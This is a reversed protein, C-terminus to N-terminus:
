NLDLQRTNGSVKRINEIVAPDLAPNLLMGDIAPVLDSVVIRDGPSIEGSVLLFDEQALIVSVNQRRLRNEKGLAYVHGNHFASRPIVLSDAIVPGMIVVECFMNRMLPPNQGTQERKYPNDVEVIVGLTRAQFDLQADGGIVKADWRSEFDLGKFVVSATLKDVHPMNESHKPLSQDSWSSVLSRMKDLPIQARIRAVDVSDARVIVSGAQVYQDIEAKVEVIRCDFPAKIISNKIEFLADAKTAEHASMEARILNETVPIMALSNKLTQVKALQQYYVKHKQDVSAQSEAKKSLLMKGRELDKETLDLNNKEITIFAELNKKNVELEVLKMEIGDIAAEAKALAFEAKKPDIRILEEDASIFSGPVLKENRAIIKGATEAIAQWTKGPEVLGYGSVRPWFDVPEVTMTRVAVARELLDSRLPESKSQILAMVIVVSIFVPILFSLLRKVAMSM